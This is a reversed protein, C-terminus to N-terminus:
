IGYEEDVPKREFEDRRKADLVALAHDRIKSFNELESIAGQIRFIQTTDDHQKLARQLIAIREDAYEKLTDVIPPTNLNVNIKQALKSNM